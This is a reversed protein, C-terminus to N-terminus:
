LRQVDPTIRSEDVQLKWHADHNMTWTSKLTSQMRLLCGNPGADNSDPGSHDSGDIDLLNLCVLIYHFASRRNRLLRTSRHRVVVAGRFGLSAVTRLRRVTWLRPLAKVHSVAFTENTLPKRDTDAHDNRAHAAM